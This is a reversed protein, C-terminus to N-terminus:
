VSNSIRIKEKLRIINSEIRKLDDESSLLMFRKKNLTLAETFRGNYEHWLAWEGLVRVKDINKLTLCYHILPEIDDEPFRIINLIFLKQLNYGANTPELELSKNIVVESDLNRKEYHQWIIFLISYFEPEDPYSEIAEFCMKKAENISGGDFLRNIRNLYIAITEENLDFKKM